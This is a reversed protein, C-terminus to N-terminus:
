CSLNHLTALGVEDLFYTSFYNIVIKEM